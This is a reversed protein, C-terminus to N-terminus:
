AGKLYIAPVEGIENASYNAILGSFIKFLAGHEDLSEQQFCM